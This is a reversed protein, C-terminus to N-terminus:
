KLKNPPDTEISQNNKQYHIVYEQRKVYRIIKILYQINNFKYKFTQAKNNEM